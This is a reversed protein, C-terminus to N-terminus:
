AVMNEQHNLKILLDFWVFYCLYKLIYAEFLSNSMAMISCKQHFRVFSYWMMYITDIGQTSKLYWSAAVELTYNDWWIVLVEWVAHLIFSWFGSVTFSNMSSYSFNM